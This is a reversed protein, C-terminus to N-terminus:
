PSVQKSLKPLALVAAVRWAPFEEKRWWAHVTTPPVRHGLAKSLAEAVVRYGGRDDIIKKVNPNAMFVFIRKNYGM